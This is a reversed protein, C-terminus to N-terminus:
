EQWSLICHSSFTKKPLTLHTPIICITGITISWEIAMDWKFISNTSVTVSFTQDNCFVYGAQVDLFAGKHIDGIFYYRLDVHIPISVKVDLLDIYEAGIGM